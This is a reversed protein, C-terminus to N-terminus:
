MSRVGFAQVDIQLESERPDNKNAIDEVFKLTDLDDADDITLRLPRTEKSLQTLEPPAVKGVMEMRRNKVPEDYIRSIELVGNLEGLEMEPTLELSEAEFIDHFCHLVHHVALRRALPEKYSLSLETFKADKENRMVRLLGTTAHFRPDGEPDLNRNGRNIWIGGKSATLLFNKVQGYQAENLNWIFPTEAELFNIVAQGKIMSIQEALTNWSIKEVAINLKSFEEQLLSTYKELDASVDEPLVFIVKDAALTPSAPKQSILMRANSHLPDSALCFKVGDFGHRQLQIGTAEVDPESVAGEVQSLVLWGGPKLANSANKLLIDSNALSSLRDSVIFTDVTSPEPEQVNSEAGLDIHKTQFFHSWPQFQAATESTTAQVTCLYKSCVPTAGNKGGLVDLAKPAFDDATQASEVIVQTPDKHGVLELWKATFAKWPVVDPVASKQNHCLSGTGPFKPKEPSSLILNKDNFVIHAMESTIKAVDPKWYFNSVVKKVDAPAKQPAVNKIMEAKSSEMNVGQALVQVKGSRDKVVVEGAYNGFGKYDVSSTANLTVGEGQPFSNSIFVSDLSRTEKWAASDGFAAHLGQFCANLTTPHVLHPYEYELPMAKKTDKLKLTTKSSNTSTQLGSILQNQDGWHIKENAWHSYFDESSMETVQSADLKTRSAQQLPADQGYHIRLQGQCHYVPKNEPDTFIDFEYTSSRNAAKVELTDVPRLDTYIDTGPDPLVVPKGFEVNSITFGNCTEGRAEAMQRGAEVISILLTQPTLVIDEDIKFDALWPNEKPRLWNRWRIGLHPELRAGVLDHRYGVRKRRSDAKHEFWFSNSHNWSYTPLNALVKGQPAETLANNVRELDLSLGKSWLTGATEISTIAANKGRSLMSAYFVDEAKKEETLIQRLPGQLASHPGIELMGDIALGERKKRRSVTKQKPFAAQIGEVFRVPSCMNQVWYSAGLDSADIQQGTVTSLMTINKNGALPKVDKIADLYQDAIVKMYPSHYAIDVKLQRAFINDAKLKEELAQLAPRNGSLTVNQPSNYCAVVVPDAADAGPIKDQIENAPVGVAMMGMAGELEPVQTTISASLRGRHYAIKWADAASLAGAAFAAGIEGSSHGVVAQPLVKWASLLEVLAVQVVTCLPQSFEAQNVRSETESKTLEELVDWEAKLTERFYLQAAAISEQFVQYQLLERGMAFWQAGQGTFVWLLNPAQGARTSKTQKALAEQLEDATQAVVPFRWQFESRRQGLTYALDSLNVDEKGIAKSERQLWEAYKNTMRDVAAQEPSSFVFLKPLQNSSEPEPTITESGMASDDSDYSSRPLGPPMPVTATMGKLGRSKLYNYADDLICHANTGGYGFSNISIRRQGSTPWPMTELPLKLNWDDLRLRPNPKKFNLTPFIQGHELQLIAKFLGALGASGELHGVNTKVSGVYMPNDETRNKTDMAEVLANMELPDGLTTGTGHAEFYQTDNPDLKAARYVQRILDSQAKASPQVIGPTKGDQNSGTARVVARITDGDAIADDLRKIALCGVGEGRSYGNAREDFTYCRGDPSLFGLRTLSVNGGAGMMLQSGAVLSMRAEGTRLSQCAQHMAVMTASCATDITQSSGRLDYFHSLRNSLMCVGIGVASYLPVNEIDSLELDRYESSSTGVFVSTDSGVVSQMPVGSDELCEYVVELMMRLAPDLAAAEAGTM